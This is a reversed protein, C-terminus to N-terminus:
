KGEKESYRDRKTRKMRVAMSQHEVRYLINWKGQKSRGEMEVEIEEKGVDFGGEEKKWQQTM